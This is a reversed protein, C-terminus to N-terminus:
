PLYQNLVEKLRQEALLVKKRYSMTPRDRKSAELLLEVDAKISKALDGKAKSVRLSVGKVEPTFNFEKLHATCGKTSHPVKEDLSKLRQSIVSPDKAAIHENLTPM